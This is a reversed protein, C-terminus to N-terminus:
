VGDGYLANILFVDGTSLGTRQGISLDEKPIITPTGNRSYANRPAHMISDYDYPRIREHGSVRIEFNHHFEPGINEWVIAVYKDRDARSQEDWLGVAHGISHIATGPFGRWRADPSDGARM